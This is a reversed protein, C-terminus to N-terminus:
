KKKLMDRYHREYEVEFATGKAKDSAIKANEVAKKHKGLKEYIRAKLWYLYYAKPNQEIAKGAYELAKDLQHNISLYYGAATAYPPKERQLAKDLHSLIRQKNDTKV